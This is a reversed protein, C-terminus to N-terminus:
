YIKLKHEKNEGIGIFKNNNNLMYKKEFSTVTFIEENCVM